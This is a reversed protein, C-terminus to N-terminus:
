DETTDMKAHEARQIHHSYIDMVGFYRSLCSALIGAKLLLEGTEPNGQNAQNELNNIMLGLKEIMTRGADDDPFKRNLEWFLNVTKEVYQLAQKLSIQGDQLAILLQCKFLGCARPKAPHDYITCEGEWLPCPLTFNLADPHPEHVVILGLQKAPIAEPSELGVYKHFCAQCCLGCAQCLISGATTNDQHNM